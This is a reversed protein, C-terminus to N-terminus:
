IIFELHWGLIGVIDDLSRSLAVVIGRHVILQSMNGAVVPEFQRTDEDLFLLAAIIIYKFLHSEIAHDDCASFYLQGITAVCQHIVGRSEVQRFARHEVSQDTLHRPCLEFVVTIDIDVALLHVIQREVTLVEELTLVLHHEVVQGVVGDLFQLDKVLAGLLTLENTVVYLLFVVHHIHLQLTLIISAIHTIDFPPVTCIVTVHSTGESEIVIVM